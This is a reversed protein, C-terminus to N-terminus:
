YKQISFLMKDLAISHINFSVQATQSWTKDELIFEMGESESLFICKRVM